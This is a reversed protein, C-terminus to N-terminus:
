RSIIALPQGPVRAPGARLGAQGACRPEGVVRRTLPASTRLYPAFILTEATIKWSVSGPGGSRGMTTRINRKISNM